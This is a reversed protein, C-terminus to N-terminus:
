QGGKVSQADQVIESVTKRDGCIRFEPPWTDIGLDVAAALLRALDKISTLCLRVPQNPAMYEIIEATNHDLNVLYAGAHELGSWIGVGKSSLGGPGFREYFVGCTFTTFLMPRGPNIRIHDRLRDLAAARGRDFFDGSPRRTPPGEFDAPVFRRVQNRSAADILHIQPVGSITSIVLDIGQLAFYLSAPDDYDVVAVHYGRM